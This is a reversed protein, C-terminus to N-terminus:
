PLVEGTRATVMEPAELREMLMTRARHLRQRFAVATTGCVASADAPLLGEAGVLLLAERHMAPLSALAAEIRRGTENAAAEEFPSAHRAANPWFGMGGETRDAELSRSRCYSYYLNRAVTYLWPALATDPRLDRGKMVLRLWTEELLDEAVDRSKALRALFSFLRGHFERHVTEFASADGARLRAVLALESDRDM